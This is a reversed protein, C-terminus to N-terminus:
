DNYGGKRNNFYHRGHTNLSWVVNKGIKDASLIDIKKVSDQEIFDYWEEATMNMYELIEKERAARKTKLYKIVKLLKNDKNIAQEINDRDNFHELMRRGMNEHASCWGLYYEKTRKIPEAFEIDSRMFCSNDMLMEINKQGYEYYESDHKKRVM